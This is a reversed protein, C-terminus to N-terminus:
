LINDCILTWRYFTPEDKSNRCPWEGHTSQSHCSKLLQSLHHASSCGPHPKSVWYCCGLRCIVRTQALSCLSSSLYTTLIHTMTFKQQWQKKERDCWKCTKVLYLNLWNKITGWTHHVDSRSEGELTVSKQFSYLQVLLWCCLLLYQDWQRNHSHSAHLMPTKMCQSNTIICAVSRNSKTYGPPWLEGLTKKTLLLAIINMPGMAIINM